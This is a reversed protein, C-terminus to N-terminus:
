HFLLRTAMTELTMAESLLIMKCVSRSSIMSWWIGVSLDKSCPYLFLYRLLFLVWDLFIIKIELISYVFSYKGTDVNIHIIQNLQPSERVLQKIELNLLFFFYVRVAWIFGEAIYSSSNHCLFQRYLTFFLFIM